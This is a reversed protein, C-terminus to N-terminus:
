MLVFQTLWTSSRKLSTLSDYDLVGGGGRERTPFEWGHMTFQNTNIKKGGLM